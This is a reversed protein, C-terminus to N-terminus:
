IRQWESWESRLALVRLSGFFGRWSCSEVFLSFRLVGQRWRNCCPVAFPGAIWRYIRFCRLHPEIKPCPRVNWWARDTYRVTFSAPLSQVEILVAIPWIRIKMAEQYPKIGSIYDISV